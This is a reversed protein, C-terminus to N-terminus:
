DNKEGIPGYAIQKWDRSRWDNGLIENMKTYSPNGLAEHAIEMIARVVHEHVTRPTATPDFEIIKTIAAIRAMDKKYTSKNM